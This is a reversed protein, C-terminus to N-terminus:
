GCAWGNLRAEPNDRAIFAVINELDRVASPAIIVKWGM